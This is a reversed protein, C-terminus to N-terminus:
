RRCYLMRDSSLIPVTPINDHDYYFSLDWLMVRSMAMILRAILTPQFMKINKSTVTYQTEEKAPILSSYDLYERGHGIIILEIAKYKRM